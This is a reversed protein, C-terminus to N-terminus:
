RGERAGRGRPQGKQVRPKDAQKRGTLSPHSNSTVQDARGAEKESSTGPQLATVPFARGCLFGAMTDERIEISENTKNTHLKTAERIDVSVNITM